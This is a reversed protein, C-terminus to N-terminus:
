THEHARLSPLKLSSRSSCALQRSGHLGRPARGTVLPARPRCLWLPLPRQAALWIARGAAPSVALGRVPFSVTLELYRYQIMLM